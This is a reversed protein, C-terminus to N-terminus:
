SRVEVKTIVGGLSEAFERIESPLPSFSLLANPLANGAAGIMDAHLRMREAIIDQYTRQESPGGEGTEGKLPAEFIREFHAKREDSSLSDLRRLTACGQRLIKVPHVANKLYDRFQDRGQPTRLSVKHETGSFPLYAAVPKGGRDHDYRYSGDRRDVPPELQVLDPIEDPTVRVYGASYIDKDAARQSKGTLKRTTQQTFLKRDYDALAASLDKVQAPNDAACSAAKIAQNYRHNVWQEIWRRQETEKHAQDPTCADWLAENIAAADESPNASRREKMQEETAFLLPDGDSHKDYAIEARRNLVSTLLSEAAAKCEEFSRRVYMYKPRGRLGPPNKQLKDRIGNEEELVSQLFISASSLVRSTKTRNWGFREMVDNQTFPGDITLLESIARGYKGSYKLVERVYAVEGPTWAGSSKLEPRATVLGRLWARMTEVSTASANETLDKGTPVTVVMAGPRRLLIAKAWQEGAEDNDRILILRKGESRKLTDAPLHFPTGGTAVFSALDGAEQDGLIADLASEQVIVTDFDPRVSGFNHLSPASGAWFTKDGSWHRSQIVRVGPWPIVIGSRGSGLGFRRITEDKLHREDHLYDLARKDTVLRKQAQKVSYANRALWQSDTLAPLETKKKGAPKVIRVAPEGVRANIKWRDLLGPRRPTDWLGYKEGTGRDLGGGAWIDLSPTKEERGVIAANFRLRKGDPSSLRECYHDPFLSLAISRADPLSNEAANSPARRLQTM